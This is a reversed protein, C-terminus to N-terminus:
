EFLVLELIGLGSLNERHLINLAEALRNWDMCEFSEATELRGNRRANAIWLIIEIVRANM